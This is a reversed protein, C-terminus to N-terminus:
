SVEASRFTALLRYKRRELKRTTARLLSPIALAGVAGILAPLATFTWHDMEVYMFIVAFAVFLPLILPFMHFGNDEPMFASVSLDVPTSTSAAFYVSLPAVVFVAYPLWAALFIADKLPLFALAPSIMIFLFASMIQMAQVKGQVLVAPNSSRALVGELHGHDVSFLIGGYMFAFGLSTYQVTLLLTPIEQTLGFAYCMLPGGVLLLLCIGRTRRHRAILRLELATAQGAQGWAGIWAIVDEVVGFTNRDQDADVTQAYSTQRILFLANYLTAGALILAPAAFLPRSMLASSLPLFVDFSVLWDVAFLIASGIVVSWFLRSRRGLTENLLIGAYTYAITAAVLCISWGVADSMPLAPLVVRVLVPIGISLPVLTHFSVLELGLRTHILSRTNLPMTLYAPTAGRTPSHMLFRVPILAVFSWLFWENAVDIPQADPAIEAVLDPFLWGASALPAYVFLTMLLLLLFILVVQGSLNGGGHSPHRIWYLVRHRLYTAVNMPAQDDKRLFRQYFAM